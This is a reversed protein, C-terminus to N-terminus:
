WRCCSRPSWCSSWSSAAHPDPRRALRTRVHLVDSMSRHGRLSAKTTREPVGVFNPAAHEFAFRAIIDACVQRRAESRPWQYFRVSRQSAGISGARGHARLETSLTSAESALPRANSGRRARWCRRQRWRSCDSLCNPVPRTQAWGTGMKHGHTQDSTSCLQALSWQSRHRPALPMCSGRPRSMARCRRLGLWCRASPVGLRM